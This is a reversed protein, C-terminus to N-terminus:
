AVLRTNDTNLHPFGVEKKMKIYQNWNENQKSWKCEHKRPYLTRKKTRNRSSQMFTCEFTRKKPKKRGEKGQKCCSGKYFTSAIHLNQSFSFVGSPNRMRCCLRCKLKYQPHYSRSKVFFFAYNINKIIAFNIM